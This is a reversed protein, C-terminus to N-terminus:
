FSITIITGEGVISNVEIKANHLKAAHKVISLGLGTGGVTKSHSKEVRYFREFIRQYDSQPIGIGTDRVSFVPRSNEESIEIIVTGHPHNYKIANDCLNYMMSNLLNPIGKAIVQQGIIEISINDKKAALSLKDKVDTAIQYLNVECMATNERSEDLRSLTIIDQILQVMRLAENRIKKAFIETDKPATLGNEILEAYGSIVHLPTKLEHSVNATFERRMAENEEQEAKKTAKYSIFVCTAILIFLVIAIPVAMKWLLAFITSQPMALRVVTGDPNKHSSYIMKKLMTDSYRQSFGYGYKLAAIIEERELHNELETSLYQNDFLVQGDADIWTIRYEKSNIGELYNTGEHLVGHAVLETQIKLQLRQEETFHNYLVTMIVSVSLIFGAIAVVSLVIMNERLNRNM